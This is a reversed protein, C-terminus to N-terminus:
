RGVIGVREGAGITVNLGKLVLPTEHRYKM